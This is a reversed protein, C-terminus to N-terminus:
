PHFQGTQRYLLGALFGAGFMVVVLIPRTDYVIGAIAGLHGLLQDLLAQAPGPDPVVASVNVPVTPIALAPVPEPPM